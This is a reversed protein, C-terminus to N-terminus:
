SSQLYRGHHFIGFRKTWISIEEKRIEHLFGLVQRVRPLESKGTQVANGRLWAAAPKLNYREAYNKM